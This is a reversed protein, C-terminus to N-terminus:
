FKIFKERSMFYYAIMVAAFLNIISHMRMSPMQVLMFMHTLFIISIGVYYSVLHVDVM